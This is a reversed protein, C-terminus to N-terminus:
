YRDNLNDVPGNYRTPIKNQTKLKIHTAKIHGPRESPPNTQIHFNIYPSPQPHNGNRPATLSTVIEPGTM